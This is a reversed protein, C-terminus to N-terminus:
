GADACVTCLAQADAAQSIHNLSRLEHWVLDHTNTFAFLGQFCLGQLFLPYWHVDDAWMRDYPIDQTPMWM